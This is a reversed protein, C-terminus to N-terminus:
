PERGTIRSTSSSARRRFISRKIAGVASAISIRFSLVILVLATRWTVHQSRGSDSALAQPLLRLCSGSALAQPDSLWASRKWGRSTLDAEQIWVRIRRM